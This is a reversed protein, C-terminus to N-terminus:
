EPYKAQLTRLLNRERVETTEKTREEERKKYEQLELETLIGSGVLSLDTFNYLIDRISMDVQDISPGDDCHYGKECELTIFTDDKFSIIMAHDSYIVCEITRNAIDRDTIQVKM